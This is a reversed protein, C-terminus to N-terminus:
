LSKITDFLIELCASHLPSLLMDSPGHWNNWKGVAATFCYLRGGNILGKVRM